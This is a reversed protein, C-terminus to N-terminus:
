IYIYIYLYIYIYINAFFMNQTQEGWNKAGSIDLVGLWLENNKWFDEHVHSM